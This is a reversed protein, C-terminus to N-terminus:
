FDPKQGETMVRVLKTFMETYRKRKDVFIVIKTIYFSPIM